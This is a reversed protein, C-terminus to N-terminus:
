DTRDISERVLGRHIGLSGCVNNVVLIKTGCLHDPDVIGFIMGAIAGGVEALLGLGAGVEATNLIHRTPHDRAPVRTLGQGQAVRAFLIVERGPGGEATVAVSIARPGGGPVSATVVGAHLHGLARIRALVDGVISAGVEGAAEEEETGMGDGEVVTDELHLARVVELDPTPALSRVHAGVRRQRARARVYQFILYSSKSYLAMLSAAM